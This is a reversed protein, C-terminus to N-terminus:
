KRRIVLREPLRYTPRVILNGKEDACIVKYVPRGCIKELIQMMKEM